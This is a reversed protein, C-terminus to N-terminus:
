KCDRCDPLRLEESKIFSSVQTCSVKESRNGSDYEFYVNVCNERYHYYYTLRAKKGNYLFEFDDREITARDMEVTVEKLSHRPLVTDPNYWMGAASARLFNEEIIPIGLMIREKNNTEDWPRRNSRDWVFYGFLVFILVISTAIEKKSFKM